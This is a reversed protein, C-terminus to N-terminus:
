HLPIIFRETPNEKTSVICFSHWNEARKEGFFSMPFADKVIQQHLVLMCNEESNNCNVITIEKGRYDFSAIFQDLFDFWNNAGVPFWGLYKTVLEYEDDTNGLRYKKMQNIKITQSCIKEKCYM